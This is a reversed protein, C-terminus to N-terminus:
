AEQVETEEQQKNLPSNNEIWAECKAICEELDISLSELKRSNSESAEEVVRFWLSQMAKYQKYMVNFPTDNSELLLNATELARNSASIIGDFQGM